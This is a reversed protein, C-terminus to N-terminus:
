VHDVEDPRVPLPAALAAAGAAVLGEPEGGFVARGLAVVATPFRTQVVSREDAEALLLVDDALDEVPAGASATVAVRRTGAPQGRLADLVETTTGSRTIALVRDYRRRPPDAACGADTEGLGADERLRALCAAVYWSTGCGVVLVREGPAALVPRAQGTRRLVRAWVEPQSAIEAATHHPM